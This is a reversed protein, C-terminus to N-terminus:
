LLILETTEEWQRLSMEPCEFVKRRLFLELAKKYDDLNQEDKETGLIDILHEIVHYNFFSRYDKLIWFVDEVGKAKRIDELCHFLVPKNPLVAEYTGLDSLCSALQKVSVQQEILSGQTRYVLKSFKRQIQKCEDNLKTMLAVRDKYSFKDLDLYPYKMNQESAYPCGIELWSSFSCQGCGCKFGRKLSHTEDSLTSESCSHDSERKLDEQVSISSDEEPTSQTEM